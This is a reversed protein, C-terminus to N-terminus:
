NYLNDGFMRYASGTPTRDSNLDGMIGLNKAMALKQLRMFEATQSPGMGGKVTMVTALGNSVLAENLSKGDVYIDAVHRGYADPKNSSVKIDVRGQKFADTIFTRAAEGYKQGPTTKGDKTKSTEQTDLSNFRFKMTV